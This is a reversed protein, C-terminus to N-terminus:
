GPQFWNDQIKLHIGSVQKELGDLVPLLRQPDDMEINKGLKAALKEVASAVDDGGPLSSLSAQMQELCCAVSRPFLRDEILFRTADGANLAVRMTRRFPTIADLSSLVSSWVVEISPLQEQESFEASMSAGAEITRLGMDAREINRGLRYFHWASDRRMTDVILGNIGQCTRIIEELFEHRNRRNIGQQINESVYIQFENILEWSEPPLTDRSTRINERVMKLSYNLSGSNSMDELLFRIVRREDRNSFRREFERHSGSAIVLNHWSIGTDRPLHSLLSTYVQILRAISEVREMYRAFWYVREAVRSLM